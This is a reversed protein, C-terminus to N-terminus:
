NPGGGHRPAVVEAAWRRLDLSWGGDDKSADRMIWAHVEPASVCAIASSVNQRSYQGDEGLTLFALERDTCVWVEPVGLRRYVELSDDAGHTVVIEVALDPPPDTRLDVSKKGRVLEYSTIYYAQDGEVGAEKRKRRFTTSGFSRFPVKLEALVIWFFQRLRDNLSEHLSSPSLLSLTGDLYVIRPNRCEGRLRLLTVYGKWDIGELAVLQDGATEVTHGPTTVTAM